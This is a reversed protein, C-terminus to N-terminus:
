IQNRKLVKNVPFLSFFTDGRLKVRYEASGGSTHEESGANKLEEWM